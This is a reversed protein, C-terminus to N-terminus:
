RYEHGQFIVSARLFHELISDEEDRYPKILLRPNKYFLFFIRVAGQFPLFDKEM